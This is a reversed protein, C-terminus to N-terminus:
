TDLQTKYNGFHSFTFFERTQNYYHPTPASGGKTVPM